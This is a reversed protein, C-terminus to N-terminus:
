VDHHRKIDQAKKAMVFSDFANDDTVEVGIGSGYAENIFEPFIINSDASEARVELMCDNDFFHLEFVAQNHKFGMTQKRVEVAGGKQRIAAERQTLFQTGSIQEEVWCGALNCRSIWFSGSSRSRIKRSRLQENSAVFVTHCDFLQCSAVLGHAAAARMVDEPDRFPMLFRRLTAGAVPEGIVEMVRNVTRNMKHEFGSGANDIVFMRDHGVWALATKEDLARAELLDESRVSKGEAGGEAQQLTYADEAGNAATVLHLVADYRRDRLITTTAGLEEVVLGWTAPSCYARGDMVGRDCLVVAPQGTAKALACMTDELAIQTRALTVQFEAVKSDSHVFDTLKAGATFLMTAAEPVAYVRYGLMELEKRLKSMATSKGACPGGTLV